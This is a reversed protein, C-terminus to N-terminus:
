KQYYIITNQKLDEIELIQIEFFKEFATRKEEVTDKNIKYSNSIVIKDKKFVVKPYINKQTKFDTESFGLAHLFQNLKSKKYNKILIILTTIIILSFSVGILVQHEKIFENKQIILSLTKM